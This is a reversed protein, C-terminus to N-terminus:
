NELGMDRLVKSVLKKQETVELERDDIEQLCRGIAVTAKIGADENGSADVWVRGNRGVAIEFGGQGELKKGLEELVVIGGSGQTSGMMLRAAFGVSVDFVMGGNLPGLGGPEAKGTAPNVCTLEIEAGPGVGVSLVRAYVLETAKLQPRTKRTAGEFSLHGLLAAPYHSSLNCNYFEAGSRQIQAIM